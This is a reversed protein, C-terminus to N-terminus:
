RNDIFCHDFVNGHGINADAGGGICTAMSMEAFRSLLDSNLKSTETRNISLCSGVNCKHGSDWGYFYYNDEVKSGQGNIVLPDCTDIVSRDLIASPDTPMKNLLGAGKLDNKMDSDCMEALQAGSMDGQGPIVSNYAIYADVAQIITTIDDFRQTDRATAKAGVYIVTMITALLGVIVIVVMMEMLTFGKLLRLKIKMAFLM